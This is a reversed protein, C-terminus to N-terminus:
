KLIATTLKELHSTNRSIKILESRALNEYEKKLMNGKKTGVLHLLTISGMERDIAYDAADDKLQYAVGLNLGFNRLHKLDEHPPYGLTGGIFAALAFLSGSKLKYEEIKEELSAEQHSIDKEQGKLLLLSTEAMSKLIETKQNSGLKSKIMTLIALEILYHSCVEAVATGYQSHCTKIGRRSLAQDMSPLDDLILSANHVLEIALASPLAEEIAVRYCQATKVLILPRWYHGQTLCAYRAAKEITTDEAKLVQKLGNYIQAELKM